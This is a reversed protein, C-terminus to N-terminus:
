GKRIGVRKETTGVGLFFIHKKYEQGENELAYQYDLPTESTYIM